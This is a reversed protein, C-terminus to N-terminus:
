AKGGVVSSVLWYNQATCRNPIPGAILDEAQERSREGGGLTVVDGVHLEEGQDTTVIPSDTGDLTYVSPWLLLSEQDGADLFLCGSRADLRGKALAGPVPTGTSYSFTPFFYDSPGQGVAPRHACASLVIWLMSMSSLLGLTRLRHTM